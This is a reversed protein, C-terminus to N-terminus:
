YRRVELYLNKRYSNIIVVALKVDEPDDVLATEENVTADNRDEALSEENAYGGDSNEYGSGKKAHSFEERDEKSYSQREDEVDDQSHKVKGERAVLSSSAKSYRVPEMRRSKSNRNTIRKFHAMLEEVSIEVDHEDESSYEFCSRQVASLTAAISRKCKPVAFVYKTEGIIVQREFGVTELISPVYKDWMTLKKDFLYDLRFIKVHNTSAFVRCLALLMVLAERYTRIKFHILHIINDDNKRVTEWQPPLDLVVLSDTSDTHVLSLSSNIDTIKLKYQYQLPKSVRKALTPDHFLRYILTISTAGLEKLGEPGLYEDLCLVDNFDDAGKRDVPILHTLPLNRIGLTSNFFGIHYLVGTLKDDRIPYKLTIKPDYLSIDDDEPVIRSNRSAKHM